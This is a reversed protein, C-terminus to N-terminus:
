SINIGVEVIQNKDIAILNIVDWNNVFSLINFKCIVM